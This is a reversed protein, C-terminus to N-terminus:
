WGGKPLSVPDEACVAPEGWGGKPLGGSVLHFDRPDIPTPGKPVRAQQAPQQQVPKSTTRM